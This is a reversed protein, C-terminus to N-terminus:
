NLIPVDIMNKGHLKAEKLVGAMVLTPFRFLILNLLGVTDLARDM